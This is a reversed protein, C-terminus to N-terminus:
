QNLNLLSGIFVRLKLTKQPGTSEADKSIKLDNQLM